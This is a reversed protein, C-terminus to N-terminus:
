FVSDPDYNFKQFSLARLYWTFFPYEDCLADAIPHVAVLGASFTFHDGSKVAHLTESKGYYPFKGSYLHHICWLNHSGFRSPRVGGSVLFSAVAPGNPRTDLEIGSLKAKEKLAFPYKHYTKKERVCGPWFLESTTPFSVFSQTNTAVTKLIQSQNLDSVKSIEYSVWSNLNKLDLKDTITNPSDLNFRKM